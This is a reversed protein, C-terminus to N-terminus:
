YNRTKQQIFNAGFLLERFLALYLTLYFSKKLIKSFFSFDTVLTTASKKSPRPSSVRVGSVRTGIKVGNSEMTEMCRMILMQQTKKSMHNELIEMFEM